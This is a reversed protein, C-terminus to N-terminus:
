FLSKLPKKRFDMFELHAVHLTCADETTDLEIHGWPGYGELSKERYHDGPLFVPTAWQLPNGNGVGPSRRSGSISGM